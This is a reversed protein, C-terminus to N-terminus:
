RQLSFTIPILGVAQVTRGDRVAPQFLWRALVQERAAEDLERFGSSRDITVELPRGDVGVLVRLQVTGAFGRRQANRPYVPPPASRYALQVPTPDFSAGIDTPPALDNLDSTDLVPETGTPMTLQSSTNVPAVAHRPPAVSHDVRPPPLVPKPHEVPVVVPEVPKPLFVFTPNAPATSQIVPPPLSIPLMIVGGLLLNLALASSLAIIRSAQPHPASAPRILAFGGASAHAKTIAHIM